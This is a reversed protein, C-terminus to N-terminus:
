SPLFDVVVLFNACDEPAEFIVEVLLFECIMIEEFALFEDYIFVLCDEKAPLCLTVSRLALVARFPAVRFVFMVFVVTVVM